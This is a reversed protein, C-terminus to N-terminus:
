FNVQPPPNFRIQSVTVLSIRLNFAPIIKSYDKKKIIPINGKSKKKNKSYRNKTCNMIKKNNKQFCVSHTKAIKLLCNVIIIILKNFM